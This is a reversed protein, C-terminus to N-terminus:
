TEPCCDQRGLLPPDQRPCSGRQRMTQSALEAAERHKGRVSVLGPHGGGAGRGWRMGMAPAPACLPVCRRAPQVAAGAARSQGGWTRFFAKWAVSLHSRLEGWGEPQQSMSGWRWCNRLPLGPRGPTFRPTAPSSTPAPTLRAARFRGGAGSSRGTSCFRRHLGQQSTLSEPRSNRVWSVLRQPPSHPARPRPVSPAPAVSVARPLPPAAPEM